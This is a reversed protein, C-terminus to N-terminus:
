EEEETEEVSQYVKKVYDKVGQTRLDDIFPQKFALSPELQAVEQGNELTKISLDYANLEIKAM